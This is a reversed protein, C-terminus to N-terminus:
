DNTQDYEEDKYTKIILDCAIQAMSKQQEIKERRLIEYVEQTVYVKKNLMLIPSRIYQKKPNLFSDFKIEDREVATLGRRKYKNSTKQKQM